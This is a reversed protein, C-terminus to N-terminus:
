PESSLWSQQPLRHEDPVNLRRVGVRPYEAGPPGLWTCRDRPAGEVLRLRDPVVQLPSCFLLAPFVRGEFPNGADNANNENSVINRINTNQGQDSMPSGAALKARGHYGKDAVIEPATQM